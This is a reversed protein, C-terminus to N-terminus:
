LADAHGEARREGPFIDAGRHGKYCLKFLTHSFEKTAYREKVQVVGSAQGAKMVTEWDWKGGSIEQHIHEVINATSLKM